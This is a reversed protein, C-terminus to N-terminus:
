RIGELRGAIEEPLMEQFRFTGPADCCVTVIRESTKKKDHLIYPMLAEAPYPLVTPLGYKRLVEALVPRLGDGCFPLMGVAVCEGHLLAGGARAELAHGVTHGFNLVRRLGGEGPDAEVIRKKIRLARFLLGPLAAPLDGCEAIDRFLEGDCTVAMKILEAMGASLERPPLSDLLAPDIVVGKPPYFAGVSNKVGGFDVGTKGGISSDAQSLLTTPIHFLDVGRMYSAAAFGSVDGTMGGGVSVVCDSRTLGADLMESLLLRFTDLTKSGEGQPIRVIRAERCAAAVVEAYEKPVGSDTVVLARRKLPLLEGVSRLLGPEMYIPYDHTPAHVTLLM